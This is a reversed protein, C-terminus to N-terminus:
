ACSVCTRATPRAHLRADPIASGCRQCTGYSGDDVRALADDLEALRAVADDRLARTRAHEFGVTAGEPDHEDDPPDQVVQAVMAAREAELAALRAVVEARQRDLLARAGVRDVDSGDGADRRGFTNNVGRRTHPM